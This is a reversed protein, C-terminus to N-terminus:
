RGRASRDPRGGRGTARRAPRGGRRDRGRDVARPRPPLPEVEPRAVRRRARARAAPRRCGLAELPARARPLADRARSAPRTAALGAGRARLRRVCRARPPLVDRVHPGERRVDVRRNGGAGSPPRLPARGRGRRPREPRASPPPRLGLAALAHLALSAAHLDLGRDLLHPSGWLTFTLPVYLDAYAHGWFYLIGSPSPPVLHPNWLTNTLDDWALIAQGVVRGFVLGVLSLIALRVIWVKSM